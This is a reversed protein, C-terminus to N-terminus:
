GGLADLEARVVAKADEGYVASRKLLNFAREYREVQDKETHTPSQGFLEVEVRKRDFIGFSNGPFVHLEARSPIIGLTVGPITFSDLIHHLQGRMVDAGGINSRLAQEGLLTHYTRGDKGFLEARATRARVGAEIDRPIEMYEVVLTLMARVYDPTQLNGWVVDPCYHKAERTQRVLDLFAEQTPGMGEQHLEDWTKTAKPM